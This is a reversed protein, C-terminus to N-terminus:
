AAASTGTDLPRGSLAKALTDLHDLVEHSAANLNEAEALAGVTNGAAQRRLIEKGADHVRKHPEVLAKFSPSNRIADDTVGDYWKGLRCGHHDPLRDATLDTIGALAGMVNKKFTVHDNKAIEVIARAGLDAFSGIQGNLVASTQEFGKFVSVIDRDNKASTQAIYTTGKAVANAADTQQRLIEAIEAMRATVSRFRDTISELQGGVATVAERGQEVAGAGKEMAGVIGSMKTRLSDIRARIDETARGTQNALSKVETAVVAFGKGAAGARAAEITANLALLNTQAAIGEIQAVIEGIQGSEAALSQVEGAAHSVAQVIQEILTV